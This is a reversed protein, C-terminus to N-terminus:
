RCSAAGNGRTHRLRQPSAGLETTAEPCPAESVGARSIRRSHLVLPTSACVLKLLQSRDWDVM